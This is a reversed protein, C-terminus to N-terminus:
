EKDVGGQEGNHPHTTRHRLRQETRKRKESASHIASWRIDHVQKRWSPGFVRELTKVSM